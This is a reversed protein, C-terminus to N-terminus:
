LKSYGHANVLADIKRGQGCLPCEEKTRYSEYGGPIDESYFLSEVKLDKIMKVGSFITAIGTVWGGYYNLSDICQDISVGTSGTAALILLKKNYITGQVNDRFMMQGNVNTEPTVVSINNEESISRVGCQSLLEALYAGIVETGDLCVITDIVISNSYLNAFYEAVKMAEKYNMTQPSTDIYCNTHSHSTMFHGPIVKLEVKNTVKSPISLTRDEM